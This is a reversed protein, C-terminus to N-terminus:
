APFAYNFRPNELSFRGTEGGVASSAHLASRFGFKRQFFELGAVTRGRLNPEMTAGHCALEFGAAVLSRVYELYDVRQLTDAAFYEQSGEPCDMPWATKTTRFGLERLRDYVPRVNELTADNTDALITFAFRKGEPFCIKM